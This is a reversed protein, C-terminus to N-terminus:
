SISARWYDSRHWADILTRRWTSRCTFCSFLGQAVTYLHDDIEGESILIEDKAFVRLKVKHALISLEEPTLEAGLTSASLYGISDAPAM